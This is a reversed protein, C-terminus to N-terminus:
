LGRSSYLIGKCFNIIEVRDRFVNETYISVKYIYVNIYVIDAKYFLLLSYYMRRRAYKIFNNLIIFAKKESCKLM